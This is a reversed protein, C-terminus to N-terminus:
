LADCIEWVNNSSIRINIDTLTLLGLFTGGFYRGITGELRCVGNDLATIYNEPFLVLQSVNGVFVDINPLTAITSDTCNLFQVVSGTSDRVAGSDVLSTSILELTADDLYLDTNRTIWIPSSLDTSSHCGGFRASGGTVQTRLSRDETTEFRLISGSVCTETFAHLSSGLILELSNNHRVLAISGVSQTLQSSPLIGLFAVVQHDNLTYVSDLDVDLRFTSNGDVSGFVIGSEHLLENEYFAQIENEFDIEMQVHSGSPVMTVDILPFGDSDFTLPIRMDVVQGAVFTVFLCKM